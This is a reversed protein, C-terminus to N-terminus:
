DLVSILLQALRLPQTLFPSHGGPLEIPEVGLLRRATTPSL